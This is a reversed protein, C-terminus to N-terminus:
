NEKSLDLLMNYEEESIIELAWEKPTNVPFREELGEKRYLKNWYYINALVRARHMICIYTVRKNPSGTEEYNYASCWACGSAIPCNFCEDTSQSRRTIQTLEDVTHQQEDTNGIGGELSGIVLPKTGEKQTFPVYRLCPYIREDPAIALMCGTGGCWNQNNEKSLSKGISEDFLSIAMREYRRDELLYDAVKILQKYFLRSHEVEWGKEFICNAFLDTIGLEHMNVVADYLYEVNSPALTLKTSIDMYANAEIQHKIAKEVIDYSGKGDPFKRCSDHLEKNGDITIGISVKNKNKKLFRQVEDDLYLIGNTSISIMYHMAWPHNETIARYKFYDVTYDILDIELLPEGGIFELIIAKSNDKTIYGNGSEYEKFLMDVAKKAIDKTMKTNDKRHEYCYSCRLNCQQTVVFTATKVIIDDISKFDPYMRIFGDMFNSMGRKIM